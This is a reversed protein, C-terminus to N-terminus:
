KGCAKQWDRVTDCDPHMNELHYACAEAAELRAILDELESHAMYIPATQSLTVNKMIRLKDDSFCSPKEQGEPILKRVRTAFFPYGCDDLKRAIRERMESAGKEYAKKMDEDICPDEDMLKEIM